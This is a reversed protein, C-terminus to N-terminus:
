LTANFLKGVYLLHPPLLKGSLTVILLVTIERIDECGFINVRKAGKKGLGLSYCRFVALEVDVFNNVLKRVAETAKQKVLGIRELQSDVWM